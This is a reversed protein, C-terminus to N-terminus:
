ENEISEEETEVGTQRGETDRDYLMGDGNLDAKIITESPECWISTGYLLNVINCFHQRIALGDQMVLGIPGGNVDFESQLVQTKKEFLGGNNIGYASLRLNDLQQMALMYEESKTLPQGTLEQFDVSGILAVWPQQRLASERLSQAGEVVSDQQDADQVRVGKIGTGSLLNTSMYPVCDAMVGLLTDNLDCRPIIIQSNQKTYDHILICYQSIDEDEKPLYSGYLVKLKLRSLYDAQKKSSEADTGSTMPVPHVTNFRGYFDITGDLAYPMFYFQDLEKIYFFALQGKYYIMRELEQSTLNMPLNYWVYRNVADQEDIIRLMRRIDERCTAGDAFKRPLKTKPNIGAQVLTKIDPIVAGM